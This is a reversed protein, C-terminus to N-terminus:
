NDVGLRLAEYGGSRDSVEYSTCEKRSIVIMDLNPGCKPAKQRCSNAEPVRYSSAADIANM